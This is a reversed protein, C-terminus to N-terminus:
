HSGVVVQGGQIGAPGEARSTWLRDEADRVRRTEGEAGLLM